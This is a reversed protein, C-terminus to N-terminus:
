SGPLGYAEPFFYDKWSAPLIKLTGVQYMFTAADMTREPVMTWKVRPGGAVTAIFDPALKYNGDEIWYGSAKNIDKNVRDTADQLANYLAQYLKPNRDHFRASTYAVTYTNPGGAIEFSDAVTHIEPHQLQMQMFPPVAFVCDIDAAGSLLAATADPPSLSVTLTDFRAFEKIGYLKAAAMEITMAQSSVRVAPVAIRKCKGLDGITKIEPNRTNLLFPQTSLASIARVEAANGHTRGWITLMGSPSGSAIDVSDSLLADNIAAPGNFQVWTVKVEPIGLRAAHEQILKEHDMVNFQLYGMSFQRALRIEPVQARAAGVGFVAVLGLCGASFKKM